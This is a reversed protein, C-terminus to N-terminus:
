GRCRVVNRHQLLHPIRRRVERLYYVISHPACNAVASEVEDPFRLLTAILARETPKDLLELKDLAAARDFSIGRAKM